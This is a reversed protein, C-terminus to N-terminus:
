RGEGEATPLLEIMAAAYRKGMELRGATTFHIQDSGREVDDCAVVRFNPLKLADQTRRVTELHPTFPRPPIGRMLVIPLKPSQVDRRATEVWRVLGEGYAQATEEKQGDGWSVDLLMGAIEVTRGQERSQKVINQIGPGPSNSEVYRVAIWVIGVPRGLHGAMARGFVAENGVLNKGAELPVWKGGRFALVDTMPERLDDPLNEIKANSGLMNSTGALVFMPLPRDDAPEAASLSSADFAAVLVIMEFALFRINVPCRGSFKEPM